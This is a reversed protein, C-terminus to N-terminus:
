VEEGARMRRLLDHLRVEDMGEQRRIETLRQLRREVHEAPFRAVNSARDRQIRELIEQEKASTIDAM